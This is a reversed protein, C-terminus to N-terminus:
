LGSALCHLDMYPLKYHAKEEPDIGQVFNGISVGRNKRKKVFPFWKQSELSSKAKRSLM